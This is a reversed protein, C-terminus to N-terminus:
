GESAEHLEVPNGDPDEIQVQAGGAGREIDNRFPTGAARLQDIIAAFDDVYLVVRNWGGAVQARGDPMPRAGSSGPGSLLLRLDGRSVAALETGAQLDLAFGLRETYFRVARDVDTVQYRVVASTVAPGAAASTSGESAEHLEVPNGDPDEIQVQAGGTGREIDNRFPTGAARLRDIIAAFDDVYLVVRNWGGAVQARGDPMPRAGSSGPGSLLLRLDGRSVAAFETGAQLDLAFGLRETYFRVARDVDTVQYRAVASTAAPDAAAPTSKTADSMCGGLSLMVLILIIKM